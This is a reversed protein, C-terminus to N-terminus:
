ARASMTEGSLRRIVWLWVRSMLSATSLGRLCCKEQSERGAPAESWLFGAIFLFTMLGAVSRKM